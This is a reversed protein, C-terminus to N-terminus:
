QLDHSSKRQTMMCPPWPSVLCQANLSGTFRSCEFAIEVVHDDAVGAGALHDRFLNFLLYSKGCRRLGTVVKILGNHKKAILRNLYIPRQIIM